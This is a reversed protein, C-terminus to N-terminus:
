LSTRKIARLKASRSRPNASIEKDQPRLPKRTLLEWEGAATAARFMQKVIRDELSHFSIVVVRGEPKTLHMASHIGRRLSGLEDNVAIRLAQFTRTAPHVRHIRRRPPQPIAQEIISVLQGTTDIHRDRHAVIARAIRASFREEGYERLINVIDRESWANVIDEARLRQTPNFRMDLPENEGFSFGRGAADFHYSAVGLDFLIGDVFRQHAELVDAYNGLCFDICQAYPSLREKVRNLMVPDREIGTIRARGSTAKLIALTHGGDGLTADIIDTAKPVNLFFLAEKVLVPIHSTM